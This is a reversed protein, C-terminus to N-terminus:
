NGKTRARVGAVISALQEVLAGTVMAIYKQGHIDEFVIDVTPNGQETGRGVVVARHINAPEFEPQEYTPALEPKNHSTIELINTRPFVSSM